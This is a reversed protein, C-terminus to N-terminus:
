QFPVVTVVVSTVKSRVSVSSKFYHCPNRCCQEGVLISRTFAAGSIILKLFLAEMLVM